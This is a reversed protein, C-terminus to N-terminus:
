HAIRSRLDLAMSKVKDSRESAANGIRTARKAAADSLKGTQIATARGLASAAGIAALGYKELLLATEHGAHEAKHGLDVSQHKASHGMERAKDAADRGFLMASAGVTEALSTVRSLAKKSVKRPILVSVVGGAAVAGVVTLVPHKKVFAMVKESPRREAPAAPLPVVNTAQPSKTAPTPKADTKAM